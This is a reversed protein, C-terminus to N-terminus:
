DPWRVSVGAGVFWDDAADTLGVGAAVDLQLNPRLLWTLGGDLSVEAGSDPGDISESGFIEVFVGRAEDLARGLAATYVFRTATDEVGADSRVTQWEAGLNVGLGLNESLDHDFNFRFSPDWADSTTDDDGVPVTSTVLLAVQPRREGGQVLLFKAGLDMDGVGDLTEGAGPGDFREEVFGSWGVRMEARDALGFRLLSSPAEFTEVDLDAESDRTFVGGVELQVSGRPVVSASETQDPRDTVLEDSPEAVANGALLLLALLLFPSPRFITRPSEM